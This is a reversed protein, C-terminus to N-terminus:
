TPTDRWRLRTAPEFAPEAADASLIRGGLRDRAQFLRFGVGAAHLLRASHLGALGGGLIAVPLVTPAAAGDM